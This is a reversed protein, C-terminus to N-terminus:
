LSRVRARVREPVLIEPAAEHVPEVQAEAKRRQQEEYRKHEALAKRSMELADAKSLGQKIGHALARLRFKFDEDVHPWIMLFCAHPDGVCSQARKCGANGCV